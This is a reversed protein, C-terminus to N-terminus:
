RAGHNAIRDQRGHGALGPHRVERRRGSGKLAGPLPELYGRAASGQALVVPRELPFHVRVEALGSRRREGVIEVRRYRPGRTRRLGEQARVVGAVDHEARGQYCAAKGSRGTSRGHAERRGHDHSPSPERWRGRGYGQLDGRMLGEAQGLRARQEDRVKTRVRHEVGSRVLGWQVCPGDRM